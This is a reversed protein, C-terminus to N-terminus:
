NGFDTNFISAFLDDSAMLSAELEEPAYQPIPIDPRGKEVEEPYNVKLEIPQMNMLYTEQETPKPHGKRPHKFVDSETFNKVTTDIWDIYPTIQTHYSPNMAVNVNTTGGRSVLGVLVFEGNENKYFNPSGSDYLRVGAPSDVLGLCFELGPVFHYDKLKCWELNYVKQDVEQLAGEKSSSGAGWGIAKIEFDTKLGTNDRDLIIPSPNGSPRGIMALAIDTFVIKRGKVIKTHYLSRSKTIEYRSGEEEEDSKFQFHRHVHAYYTTSPSSLCHGASIIINDRYLTGGCNFKHGNSIGVMFPYSFPEADQGGYIRRELHRASIGSVIPILLLLSFM